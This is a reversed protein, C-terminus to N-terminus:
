RGTPTTGIGVNANNLIRMAETAGNNGVKFIHDAGTTGVGSTPQYTITSTTTTGGILLPTTVSTSFTKAGAM